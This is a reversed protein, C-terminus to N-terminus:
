GIHHIAVDERHRRLARNSGHDLAHLGLMNGVHHDQVRGLGDPHQRFPIQDAQEVLPHLAATADLVEHARRHGRHGPRQSETGGVDLQTKGAQTVQHHDVVLTFRYPTEALRLDFRCLPGFIATVDRDFYGGVVLRTAFAQRGSDDGEQGVDGPALLGLLGQDLGLLCGLRGVQRLAGEQGVHAVLNARREIGDGAHGM